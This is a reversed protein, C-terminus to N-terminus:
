ITMNEDFTGNVLKMAMKLSAKVHLYEASDPIVDAPGTKAPLGRKKMASFNSM